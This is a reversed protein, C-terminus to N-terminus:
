CWWVSAKVMAPTTFNRTVDAVVATTTKVSAKQPMMTPRIVFGVRSWRHRPLILLILVRAVM